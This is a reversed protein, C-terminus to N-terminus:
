VHSKYHIYEIMLYTRIRLRIEVRLSLEWIEVFTCMAYYCCKITQISLFVHLAGRGKDYSDEIVVQWSTHGGGWNYQTNADIIM